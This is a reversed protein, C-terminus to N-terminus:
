LPFEILEITNASVKIMSGQTHWAGLVARCASRACQPVKQIAPRHTHGHIIWNVNHQQLLNIVARLNVDTIDDPKKSSSKHSHQRILGAIHLRLKLPLSLFIKRILGILTM